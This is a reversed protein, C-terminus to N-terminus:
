YRPDYVLDTNKEESCGRKVVEADYFEEGLDISQEIPVMCPDTGIKISTPPLQAVQKSYVVSATSNFTQYQYGNGTYDSLASTEVIKIDTIPCSSGHELPPYCLQDNIDIDAICPTTNDPCQGSSNPRTVNLFSDGGLKGCIRKGDFQSQWILPNAKVNDCMCDTQEDNCTDGPIFRYSDYTKFGDIDVCM